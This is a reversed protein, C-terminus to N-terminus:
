LQNLAFLPADAPLPQRASADAHFPGFRSAVEDEWFEGKFHVPSRWCSVAIVCNHITEGHRQRSLFRGAKM